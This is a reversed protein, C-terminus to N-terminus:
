CFYCSTPSKSLSYCLGVIIYFVGLLLHVMCFGNWLITPWKEYDNAFIFFDQNNTYMVLGIGIYLLMLLVTISVIYQFMKWSLSQGGEFKLEEFKYKYHCIECHYTDFQSFYGPIVVRSNCKRFWERLCQKHVYKCSGQCDCPSVLDEPESEELCYRCTKVELLNDNSM